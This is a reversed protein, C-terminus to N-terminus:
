RPLKCVMFLVRKYPYWILLKTVIFTYIAAVLILIQFIEMVECLEGQRKVTLDM